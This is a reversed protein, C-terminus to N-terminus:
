HEHKSVFKKLFDTLAGSEEPLPANRRHPPAVGGNLNEPKASPPASAPPQAAPKKKSDNLPHLRNFDEELRRILDLSKVLSAEKESLDRSLKDVLRNRIALDNATDGLRRRANDLDIRSKELEFKTKSLNDEATKLLAETNQTKGREAHLTQELEPIRATRNELTSTKERAQHLQEKLDIIQRQLSIALAREERHNELEKMLNSVHSFLRAGTTDILRNVDEVAAPQPVQPSLPPAKADKEKLIKVIDSFEGSSRWNKELIEGEAPCVLTASTFGELAGLEEPTFTDPIEGNMYVWYKM